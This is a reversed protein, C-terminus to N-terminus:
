PRERRIQQQHKIWWRAWYSRSRERHVRHRLIFIPISALLLGTALGVLYCQMLDNMAWGREERYAPLWEVGEM